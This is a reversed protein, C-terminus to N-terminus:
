QMCEYMCLLFFNFFLVNCRFFGFFSRRASNVEGHTFVGGHTHLRTQAHQVRNTYIHAYMLTYMQKISIIHRLAIYHRVSLLISLCVSLAKGPENTMSITLTTIAFMYAHLMCVQM